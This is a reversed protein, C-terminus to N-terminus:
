TRKLNVLQMKLLKTSGGSRKELTKVAVALSSIQLGQRCLSQLKIFKALILEIRPSKM